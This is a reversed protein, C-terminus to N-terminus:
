NGMEEFHSVTDGLLTQIYAIQGHHHAIEVANLSVADNKSCEGWPLVVIQEFEEPKLGRITQAFQAASERIASQAAARTTTAVFDAQYKGGRLVSSMKLLAEATHNVIELASKAHPAPKWDIKDDPIFGLNYAFNGGAWEIQQAMTELPHM